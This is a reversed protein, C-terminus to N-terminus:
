LLLFYHLFLTIFLVPLLATEYPLNVHLIVCNREPYLTQAVLLPSTGSETEYPPAAPVHVFIRWFFEDVLSNERTYQHTSSWQKIWSSSLFINHLLIAAVSWLLEVTSKQNIWMWLFLALHFQDHVPFSPTGALRNQFFFICITTIWIISIIVVIPVTFFCGHAFISSFTVPLVVIVVLNM